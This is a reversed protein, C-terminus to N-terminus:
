DEGADPAGGGRREKVFVQDDQVTVVVAGPSQTQAVPALFGGGHVQDGQVLFGAVKAPPGLAVHAPAEARRPQDGGALARYFQDEVARFADPGVVRAGALFDPVHVALAVLGAEALGNRHGALIREVDGRAPRAGHLGNAQAAAAVHGFAMDEPLDRALAPVN